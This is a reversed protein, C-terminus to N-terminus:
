VTPRMGLKTDKNKSEVLTAICKLNLTIRLYRVSPSSAGGQFLGM